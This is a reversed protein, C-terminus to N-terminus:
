KFVPDFGAATLAATRIKSWSAKLAEKELGAKGPM